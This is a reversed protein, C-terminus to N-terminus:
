MKAADGLDEGFQHCVPQGRQQSGGYLFVLTSEYVLSADLVIEQLNLVQDFLQVSAFGLKNRLSSM